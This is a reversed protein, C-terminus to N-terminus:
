MKQYVVTVIDGVVHGYGSKVETTHKTQSFRVTVIDEEILFFMEAHGPLITTRGKPTKCTFSEVLEYTATESPSILLCKM